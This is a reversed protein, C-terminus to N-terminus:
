TPASTPALRRRAWWGLHVVGGLAVVGALAAAKEADALNAALSLACVVSPTALAAAAARTGGPLKPRTM